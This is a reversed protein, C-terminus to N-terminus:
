MCVRVDACVCGVGVMKVGFCMCSWSTLVVVFDAGVEGGQLAQDDGGFPRAPRLRDRRHVRPMWTFGASPSGPRQPHGNRVTSGDGVQTHTHTHTHTHAFTHAPVLMLPVACRHREYNYILAVFLCACFIM